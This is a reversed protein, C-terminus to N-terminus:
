RLFAAEDDDVVELRGAELATVAPLVEFRVHLADQGLRADEVQVHRMRDEMREELDVREIDNRLGVVGAARVEAADELVVIRRLRSCIIM